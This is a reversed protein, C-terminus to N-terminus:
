IAVVGGITVCLFLVAFTGVTFLSGMKYSKPDDLKSFDAKKLTKEGHAKLIFVYSVYFVAFGSVAIAALIGINAWSFTDFSVLAGFYALLITLLNNIFHMIMSYYVNGTKVAVLGLVIGYLFPYISQAPNLHFFAFTLASLVVAIIDGFSKLSSLLLGRFIVEEVISPIICIVVISLIWDLADELIPYTVSMEYQVANAIYAAIYNFIMLFFLVGVGAVVAIPMAFPKPKDKIPLCSIDRKLVFVYLVLVIISVIPVVLYSLFVSYKGISPKLAEVGYSLLSGILIVILLVIGVEFPTIGKINKEEM